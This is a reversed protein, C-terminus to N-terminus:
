EEDQQSGNKNIAEESSGGWETKFVKDKQDPEFVAGDAKERWEKPRRNKLWFIAAITDPPYHEVYEHVKVEMEGTERNKVLFQKEANHSYGCARRFLSAEVMDDAISKGDKLAELFNKHKAQWIYITNVHVGITSAIEENTKGEKALETVKQLMRDNFKTPRGM